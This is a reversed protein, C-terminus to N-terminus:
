RILTIYGKKMRAEEGVTEDYFQAKLIYVYTETNQPKGEYMGDWGQKIDNTRFVLQGWRNYIEFMELKKIGWGKVYLTDNKGDGNPSFATPVDVTHENLVKIIVDKKRDFCKNASTDKVTITYTTTVDPKAVPSLCNVCTLYKDPSWFFNNSGSVTTFVNVEEGIIITTDPITTIQPTPLVTVQVTDRNKCGNADTVLVIYQAGASPSALTNALTDNSLNVGTWFYIAGGSASLTVSDGDCITTDNSAIVVPLPNVRVAISDSDLCTTNADIIGKMLLKVIFNGTDNYNHPPPNDVISTNGDGFNWTYSNSTASSVSGNAFIFNFPVCDISDVSTVNAVVNHVYVSDDIFSNCSGSVIKLKVYAMGPKQYPHITTDGTGPIIPSGDGFDWEFSSLYLQNQIIFTASAGKCITDPEVLMTASPGRVKIYDKYFATDTCGYGNTTDAKVILMIDFTDPAEPSEYVSLPNKLTSTSNDGFNWLWYDIYPSISTDTFYVPAPYCSTDTPTATFGAKPNAIVRVAQTKTIVSDCGLVTDIATMTVNFWGTDNATYTYNPNKQTSSDTNGFNWKFTLNNTDSWLYTSTNLFSFQQGICITTDSIAYNPYPSIPTIYAIKLLTDKCGLTDTVILQVNKPGLPIYLHSPNQLTSFNSVGSGPDGFDWQWAVITTDSRTTDNFDVKLTSCHKLTDGLFYADPKFIHVKQIMTDICNNIDRVTLKVDLIGSPGGFVFQHKISDPTVSTDTSPPTYAYIYGDGFNWTYQGVEDNSLSSNFNITGPKCAIATDMTFDAKLNRVFVTLSDHNHCSATDATTFYSYPIGNPGYPFPALFHTPLPHKTYSNLYVWYNGVTDYTHCPKPNLTDQTRSPYPPYTSDTEHEWWMYHRLSDVTKVSDVIAVPLNWQWAYQGVQLMSVTDGCYTFPSDCDFPKSLASAKIKNIPGIVYIASDWKITTDCKNYELKLQVNIFGTDQFGYKTWESDSGSGGDSTKWEWFDISDKPIGQGIFFRSTDKFFFTDSACVYAVKKYKIYPYASATDGPLTDVRNPDKTLNFWMAGPWISDGPQVIVTDSYVCTTDTNMKVTLVAYMFGDDNYTYVPNQLSSTDTTLTPVGFDWSWTKVKTAISPSGICQASDFNWVGANVDGTFNVDLPICGKAPNPNTTTNVTPIEIVVNAPKVKSAKCGHPSTAILTVTYNYTCPISPSFTHSPNQAFSTDNPPPVDGFHWEWGVANSSSDHFQATLPTKCSYFPSDVSFDAKVLEVNISDTVTDKCSPAPGTTIHLIQYDGPTSYVAQPNQSSSTVGNGFDWFYFFGNLSTDTFSVLQNPCVTDKSMTFGSKVKVIKVDQRMTDTCSQNNVVLAVTFTDFSNFTHSPNTLISSDGDDFFWQYTLTGTGTSTNNFTVTFPTDCAISGPAPITFGATPKAIVNVYCDVVKSSKCGNIDTINLSVKKCGATTYTKSPNQSTSTSGDNFDWLWSVINGDTFTSSDTFSVTLPLCGITVNSGFNAVPKAFAKIYATKTISECIAGDCVKLSVTYTGPTGYIAGANLLNSTNGNGLTWLYTTSGTTGTSLNTFNVSLPACGSTTDAKFNATLQAYSSCSYFILAAVTFLNRLFSFM